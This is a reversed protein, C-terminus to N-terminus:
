GNQLEQVFTGDQSSGAEDVPVSRVAQLRRHGCAHSGSSSGTPGNLTALGYTLVNKAANVDRDHHTGCGPCTWERVSLPLSELVRGKRSVVKAGEGECCAAPLAEQRVEQPRDLGCASQSEKGQATMRAFREGTGLPPKKGAGKSRAAM